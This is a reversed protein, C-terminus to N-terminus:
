KAKKLIKISEFSSPHPYKSLEKIYNKIKQESNLNDSYIKIGRKSQTLENVLLAVNMEAKSYEVVLEGVIMLFEEYSKPHKVSDSNM